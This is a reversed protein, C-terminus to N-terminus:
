RFFHEMMHIEVGREIHQRNRYMLQQGAALVGLGTEQSYLVCEANTPLRTFVMWECGPTPCEYRIWAAPGLLADSTWWHCHNCYGQREDEPHHSTWGCVPCTIM